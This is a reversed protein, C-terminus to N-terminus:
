ARALAAEAQWQMLRLWRKVNIAAGVFYCFLRTKALGRYRTRRGGGRVYESITGEIGNRQQMRKQFAETQMERRRRQLLDHHEGVVLSRRGGRSRTCKKQLPCEDCQSAWEFRYVVAGTEQNELRSCQASTKGAPCVAKRNAVDVDFEDSSFGGLHKPSPRAPGILERGEEQAKALTDDSVYATDVYSEKALEQGSAQQNAELRKHGELDSVIAQTTTVETLFQETPEGKEKAKGDPAVTEALQVKMGEWQKDKKQGKAAWQVDPDHPNKVVGSGEEKRRQVGAEVTVEYQELFVRELVLTKEDERIRSEQGRAWAILGMMDQGAQQYKEKLVEVGARHWPFDNDVYREALMAWGPLREQAKWRKVAELFVRITDRVLELRSMRAVAGFIHTSDIRQKRRRIMGAKELCQEILSFGLREAGGQVLRERFTVLSSADFGGYDIELGLAYKWGIHLQVNEAAARDPVKEMYQLYTAGLMVVPEIAPRGNDQCYLALLQGRMEWLKPFIRERFLRYRHTPSFLPEAVVSTDFFTKQAKVPPVSM